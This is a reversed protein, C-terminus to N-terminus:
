NRCFSAHSVPRFFVTSSITAASFCRNVGRVVSAIYVTLVARSGCKLNVYVASSSCRMLAFDSTRLAAKVLAVGRCPSWAPSPFLSLSAQVGGRLFSFSFASTSKQADHCLCCALTGDRVSSTSVSSALYKAAGHWGLADSGSVQHRSLM